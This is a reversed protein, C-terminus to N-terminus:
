RRLVSKLTELPYEGDIVIDFDGLCAITEDLDFGDILEEYDIDEDDLVDAAAEEEDSDELGFRWKCGSLAAWDKMGETWVMTDDDIKGQSLVPVTERM